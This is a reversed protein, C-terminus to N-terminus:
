VRISSSPVTGFQLFHSYWGTSEYVVTPAYQMIKGGVGGLYLRGTCRGMLFGTSYSLRLRLLSSVSSYESTFKVQAGIWIHRRRVMIDTSYAFWKLHIYITLRHQSYCRPLSGPDSELDHREILDMREYTPKYFIWGMHSYFLGRTAAYRLSIDSSILVHVNIWCAPWPDPRGYIATCIRFWNLRLRMYGSVFLVFM